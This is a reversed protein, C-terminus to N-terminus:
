PSTPLLFKLRFFSAQDQVPFVAARLYVDQLNGITVLSSPTVEVWNVLNTSSEFLRQVDGLNKRERFSFSFSGAASSLPQLETAASDAVLPNGGMAFEALNPTGDGDPDATATGFEPDALQADTFEHLAWDGYTGPLAREFFTIEMVQANRPNTPYGPDYSSTIWLIANTAYVPQPLRVDLAATAAMTGQYVNTGASPLTNTFVANTVNLFVQVAKPGYGGNLTRPYVQFESLAIQRSFNVLLWEPHNATPGQGPSTGSTVWFDNYNGDVANTPPYSSQWSSGAVASIPLLYPLYSPATPPLVATLQAPTGGTGPFTLVVNTASVSWSVQTANSMTEVASKGPFWVAYRPGLPSQPVFQLTDQAAGSRNYSSAAQYNFYGAPGAAVGYRGAVCVWANTISRSAGSRNTITASGSTWELLRSGGVLPDNEIGVCFGGASSGYVGVIPWPVEVIAVTQENCNVYVETTGNAGNTLRLEAQFGNANSILSVLRAGTPNGLAGLGIIGPLRPTTVYTNTPVAPAPPEIIAMIRAPSGNTQPGYCLGVFGVPGRQVVIGVDPLHEFAPSPASTLGSPYDATAWHLWAIATRRAEVAERYFGGDSPGVFTGDGNVLQRYRVLQALQGDAWRALPDNFHAALWTIYSNQEYDHLEWDLGSPYAFEGSDMVLHNENSWVNLVNHEAFVQLQTAVTSNALQAMLLSDGMSMGAVMQYTPHYFGHNELAFDPYLTVTSIWSSLPDGNTNAVTYTNALYKKAATLWLAANTNSSLWAAGLALVNSDWGNEEAKTDSVYGSAPAISARHTAESAVVQQVAQVTSAPLQNQVLLCALGMSGTWLPTQWDTSSASSWGWQHGDTCVNTGTVHAGANYNLAQRIRSLRTVLKPDGPYAEALVAYALAVGGNGRIGGNGSSAGDGWYGADAPANSYSATHWISEAYTEFNTLCQLYTGQSDARAPIQTLVLGILGLGVTCRKM